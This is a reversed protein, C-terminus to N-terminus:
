KTASPAAPPLGRSKYWKARENGQYWFLGNAGLSMSLLVLLIVRKGKKHDDGNIVWTIGNAMPKFISLIIAM